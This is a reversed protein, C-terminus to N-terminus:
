FMPFRYYESTVDPQKTPLRDLFRGLVAGVRRLARRLFPTPPATDIAVATPALVISM